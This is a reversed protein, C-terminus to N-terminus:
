VGTGWELGGNKGRHRGPSAAPSRHHPQHVGGAVLTEPRFLLAGARVNWNEPHWTQRGLLDRSGFITDRRTGTSARSSLLHRRFRKGTQRASRSLRRLRESLTKRRRDPSRRRHARPKELRGAGHAPDLRSGCLVDVANGVSSHFCRCRCQGSRTEFIRPCLPDACDRGNRFRGPIEELIIEGETDLLRCVHFRGQRGQPGCCKAITYHYSRKHNEDGLKLPLCYVM